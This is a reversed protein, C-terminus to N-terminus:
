STRRPSLIANWAFSVGIAASANRSNRRRAEPGRHPDAIEEFIEADYDGKLAPCPRRCSPSAASGSRVRISGRSRPPAAAACWASLEDRHTLDDDRVTRPLCGDRCSYRCFQV